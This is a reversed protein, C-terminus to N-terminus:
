VIQQLTHHVFRRHLLFSRLRFPANLLHALALGRILHFFTTAVVYLITCSVSARVVPNDAIRLLNGLGVFVPGDPDFAPNFRYLSLCATQLFPYFATFVRLM